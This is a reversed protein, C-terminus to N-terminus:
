RARKKSARIRGSTLLRARAVRMSVGGVLLHGLFRFGEAFSTVKTKSASMELHLDELLCRVEVLAEEARERTRCLVVFDDAYRVLKFGLAEIREDFADLYLNALLPSLVGGQPVGRVQADRRFPAPADEAAHIWQDVLMIVSPDSVYRRLVRLLEERDITGFYDEIDADLVYEYGEDRLREIRRIAQRVSRGRRYGFSSEEFQEDLVPDIVRLVAQQAVRDRVTPVSLKRTGGDAKPIRFTKLGHARYSGSALQLQLEALSASLGAEFRALGIGDVGACGRNTKVRKWAAKLNDADCIREMLFSQPVSTTHESPGAATSEVSQGEDVYLMHSISADQELAAGRAIARHACRRCLRYICARDGPEVHRGIARMVDGIAEDPCEFASYQVAWGVGSLEKHLRRRRKDNGIDYVVVLM